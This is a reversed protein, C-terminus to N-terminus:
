PLTTTLCSEKNTTPVRLNRIADGKTVRIAECIM